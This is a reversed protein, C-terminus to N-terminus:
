LTGSMTTVLKLQCRIQEIEGTTSVSGPARTLELRHRTSTGRNLRNCFPSVVSVVIWQGPAVTVAPAVTGRPQFSGGDVSRTLRVQVDALATARMSVVGFAHVYLPNVDIPLVMIGGHQCTPVRGSDLDGSIATTDSEVFIVDPELAEALRRMFLAMQARNVNLQPCYNEGLGCGVTVNANRM